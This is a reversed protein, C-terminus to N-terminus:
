LELACSLDVCLWIVRDCLELGCLAPDRWIAWWWSHGLCVRFVAHPPFMCVHVSICRRRSADSDVPNSLRPAMPSFYQKMSSLCQLLVTGSAHGPHDTWRLRWCLGHLTCPPAFSGFFGKLVYVVQAGAKGGQRRAVRPEEM